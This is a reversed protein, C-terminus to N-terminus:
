LFEYPNPVHEEAVPGAPQSAPSQPAGFAAIMGFAVAMAVLWSKLNKM